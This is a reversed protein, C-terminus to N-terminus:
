SQDRITLVEAKSTADEWSKDDRFSILRPFRLAVGATHNPSTTIEDAAVEIVLGPELWADPTLNKDVLYQTPKKTAVLKNAREKMERFQDDTLGTGIKTLTLIEDSDDDRIGVLIAGLGFQARKGKGVYTGMVICDVSDSLKGREGEVEKMKVWRWGKRGGRYVSDHKKFIAGELGVDLQAQHYQRIEDADASEIFEVSSYTENKSIVEALIEKRKELPLDILSQGDKELIDFIFFKIPVESAQNEIGHKRKRTVTTQFNVLEGTKPDVGIAEGDLICSECNLENEAQNIEPFMHTADDLSRTFAVPSQGKQFHIQIRLGDYKPEVLVKDMKEIIETSSNLRQALAPVVPVGNEVSYNELSKERSSQDPQHLYHGALKGVDAQKNYAEELVERDSKDGNVAWSLSDLLTMTSFGLRVKGMIIRTIYRASLPDAQEWLKVLGAVKREQSGTGEELAIQKLRGFVEALSLEKSTLGLEQCFYEATQGLDGVDKFKKQVIEAWHTDDSEGFLNTQTQGGDSSKAQHHAVLSTLSRLIMKTSLNFELSQYEPVLRGQMLYSAPEIEDPSFQQYLEALQSTMELRSPTSELKELAQSFEFFTM